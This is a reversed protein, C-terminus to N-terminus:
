GGVPTESKIQGSEKLENFMIKLPSDTDSKLELELQKPKEGPYHSVKKLEKIIGGSEQYGITVDGSVSREGTVLMEAFVKTGVKRVNSFTVQSDLKKTRVILPINQVLTPKIEVKKTSEEAQGKCIVAIAGIYEGDEVGPKRRYIAKFEQVQRFDLNFRSPAIRVMNVPSPNNIGDGETLTLKGNKVDLNRVEIKCTLPEDDSNIVSMSTSQVDPSLFLRTSTVTVSEVSVSIFCFLLGFGLKIIYQKTNM